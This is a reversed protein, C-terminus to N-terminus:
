TVIESLYSYNNLYCNTSIYCNFDDGCCNQNTSAINIFRETPAVFDNEGHKHVSTSIKPQVKM